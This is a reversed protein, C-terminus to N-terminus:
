EERWYIFAGPGSRYRSAQMSVATSDWVTIIQKRVRGVEAKGVIRWIRRTGGVVIASNIKADLKVGSAPPLGQLQQGQDGGAIGDVAAALGAQSMPDEVAQVFSKADQFGGRLDRILLLYRVLLALNRPQLAPDTRSAAYQLILATLVPADALAVNVKCHGYVTLSDAFAAIFDEDVGKVLRLEQLTDFYQNKNEYPDERANYRYDEAASGGYVFTDQDTWDIIARMQELRDTYQGTDSAQEFLRDYRRPSMLATLQAALQTVPVAQWNPGGGCNINIKGDLSKMELDFSGTEVGLGKIGEAQLGLLAGIGEAGEASNFASIILPAYDAIQLDLGGLFKRNPDIFKQQVRLLLRSFNIASRAHYHAQLDDRANIASTFDVHTNYAFDAMLSGLVALIVVVSILAIGRQRRDDSARIRADGKPRGNRCQPRNMEVTVGRYVM